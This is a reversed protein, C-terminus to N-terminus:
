VSCFAFHEAAQRSGRRSDSAPRIRFLFLLSPMGPNLAFSASTQEWAGFRTGGRGHQREQFAAGIRWPLRFDTGANIRSQAAVKAM